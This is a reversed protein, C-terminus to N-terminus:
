NKEEKLEELKNRLNNIMEENLEVLSGNMYKNVIVKMFQKADDPRFGEEENEELYEEVDEWWDADFNPRKYNTM